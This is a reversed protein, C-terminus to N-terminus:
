KINQREGQLPYRYVHAIGLEDVDLLGRPVRDM